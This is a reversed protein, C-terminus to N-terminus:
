NKFLMKIKNQYLHELKLQMSTRSATPHRSEPFADFVDSSRANSINSHNKLVSRIVGAVNELITDNDSSFTDFDSELSM